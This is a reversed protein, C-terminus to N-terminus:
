LLLTQEDQTLLSSFMGSILSVTGVLFVSIQPFPKLCCRKKITLPSPSGYQEFRNGWSALTPFLLIFAPQLSGDWWEACVWQVGRCVQLSRVYCRMGNLYHLLCKDTMLHCKFHSRLGMCQGRFCKWILWIFTCMPWMKCHFLMPHPLLASFFSFFPTRILFFWLPSKKKKLVIPFIFYPSDTLLRKPFVWSPRGVLFILVSGKGRWGQGM